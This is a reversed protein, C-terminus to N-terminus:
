AERMGGEDREYRMEEQKVRVMLNADVIRGLHATLYSYNKDQVNMLLIRVAKSVTGDVAEGEEATMEPLAKDGYPDQGIISSKAILGKATLKKGSEPDKTEIAPNRELLKSLTKGAIEQQIVHRLCIDEFFVWSWNQM